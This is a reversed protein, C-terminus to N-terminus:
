YDQNILRLNLYGEDDEELLYKYDQLENRLVFLPNHNLYEDILKSAQHTANDIADIKSDGFGVTTKAILPLYIECEYLDNAKKKPELVSLVDQSTQAIWNLTKIVDKADIVKM